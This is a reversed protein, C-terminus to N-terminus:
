CPSWYPCPPLNERNVNVTLVVSLMGVVAVRPVSDSVTLAAGDIVVAEGKGIPAM